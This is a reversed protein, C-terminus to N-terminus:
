SSTDIWIINKGATPTPQSNQIYLETPLSSENIIGNGNNMFKTFSGFATGATNITRMYINQNADALNNEAPLWLQSYCTPTKANNNGLCIVTWRASMQGLITKSTNLTYIGPEIVPNALEADTVIDVAPSVIIEDRIVAM